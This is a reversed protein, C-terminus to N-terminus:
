LIASGRLRHKESIHCAMFIRRKSETLFITAQSLLWGAVRFAGM